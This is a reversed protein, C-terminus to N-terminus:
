TIARQRRDRERTAGQQAEVNSPSLAEPTADAAGGAAAALDRAAGRLTAGGTEVLDYAAGVRDWDFRVFGAQAEDMAARVTGAGERYNALSSAFRPPPPRTALLADLDDLSQDMRDQASRIELLNRSRREGIEALAAAELSARTLRPSVEEYFSAEEPALATSAVNTMRPLPRNRPATELLVSATALGGLVALTVWTWRTM